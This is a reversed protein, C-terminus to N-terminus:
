PARADAPLALQKLGEHIRQGIAAFDRNRKAGNYDWNSGGRTHVVTCNFLTDASGGGVGCGTGRVPYTRVDFSFRVFRRLLRWHFFSTGGADLRFTPRLTAGYYTLFDNLHVQEQNVFLFSAHYHDVTKPHPPQGLLVTRGDRAAVLEFNYLFSINFPSVVFADNHLLLLRRRHLAGFVDLVFQTLGIDRLTPHWMEVDNDSTYFKLDHLANPFRVCCVPPRAAVCQAYLENTINRNGDSLQQSLGAQAGFDLEDILFLRVFPRAPLSSLLPRGLLQLHLSLPFAAFTQAIVLDAHDLEACAASHPLFFALFESVRRFHARLWAKFLKRRALNLVDFHRLDATAEADGYQPDASWVTRMAHLLSALTRQPPERWLQAAFEGSGSTDQTRTPLGVPPYATWQAAVAAAASSQAAFTALPDLAFHVASLLLACLVMGGCCSVLHCQLRRPAAAAAHAAAAAPPAATSDM